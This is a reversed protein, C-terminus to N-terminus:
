TVLGPFLLGLADIQREGPFFFFQNPIHLEIIRKLCHAQIARFSPSAINLL